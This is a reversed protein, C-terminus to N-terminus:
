APRKEQAGGWRSAREGATLEAPWRGAGPPREARKLATGCRPCADRSVHWAATYTLLTCDPCRLYPM